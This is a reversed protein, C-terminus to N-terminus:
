RYKDDFLSMFGVYLPISMLVAIIVLVIYM